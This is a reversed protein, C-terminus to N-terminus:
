VTSGLKELSAARDADCLLISDTRTLKLLAMVRAGVGCQRLAGREEISRYANVLFGLGASDCYSCQSLDLVLRDVGDAILQQVQTDVMKLGTGLTLAGDIAVVATTPNLRDVTLDLPMSCL